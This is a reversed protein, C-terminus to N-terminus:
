LIPVNIKKKIEDQVKKPILNNLNGYATRAEEITYDGSDIKKGIQNIIDRAEAEDKWPITDFQNHYYGILGVWFEKTNGKISFGLAMLQDIADIAAAVNKSKKIKIIEKKMNDLEEAQESGGHREVEISTESLTENLEKEIEPWKLSSEITDIAAAKDNFHNQESNIDEDNSQKSLKNKIKNLSKKVDLLENKEKNSLSSDDKLDEIREIEDDIQSFLMNSSINVGTAADDFSKNFFEDTYPVYVEIQIRRSEDAKMTIEMETGKPILSKVDKGNIEMKGMYHNRITKTHKKGNWLQIECNDKENAPRIDNPFKPNVNSQLTKKAPLSTGKDIISILEEQNKDTRYVSIGTDKPMPPAALKMGQMVSLKDPECECLNSKEDYVEVKFENNTNENLPLTAIASKDDFSILGSEYNKDTGTFSISYGEFKGKDKIKIGATAKLDTVQSPCAILLQMKTMDRKQKKEPISRTSAYYAAGVSVSTMPDISMDLKDAIENKIRERIYPSLTPGGVPLISILEEPKVKSEKLLKLTIDIARDVYEEISEEYMKRTIEFDVDVAEGNDDHINWRDPCLIDSESDTLNKKLNEIEKKMVSFLEERKNKDSLQKDFEYKQELHPVIINEFIARDFLKGGLNNDGDTAKGKNAISMLKDDMELIAADFTGGGLDFVLWKGEINKNKKLYAMSAAIPEQLLECYDFGALEAARNTAQVQTQTFAAPITIIAANFGKDDKVANIMSGLVKSSLDEPTYTKNNADCVYEKDTGMFAKFERFCNKDGINSYAKVGSFERCKKDIYICSPFLFSSDKQIIDIQGNNMRSISSNTTGLDIGYNIKFDSM